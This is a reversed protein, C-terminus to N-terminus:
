FWKFKKFIIIQLVILGLLIGCFTLFAYNADAGPIGGVNIGLLGTLFGLPLFIATILSLVYMNRNLKDTMINVLEDKIIQARERIADLDEVYRTVHNYSEQLHRKQNDKLWEIETMRLQSIADRQPAIYRRFVIAQKRVDVISKRLQIDANELIKEELDDTVEDLESLVPEMRELLRFTLLSIFEGADKPGRNCLLRQEIDEITKLERKILSIIRYKDVWLRISVMDEPDANANLNVGRLILLLGEGVQTMRPRTEDTLLAEILLPDLSTVEKELWSKTELHDADLHVWVLKEDKLKQSLTEDSITEGGGQGDLGYALLIHDNM